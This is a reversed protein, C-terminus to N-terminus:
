TRSGPMSARSRVATESRRCFDWRALDLTRTLEGSDQDVRERVIPVPDTPAICYSPRWERHDGGAAVFEKILEDTGSDLAFRGCM